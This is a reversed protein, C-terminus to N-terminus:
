QRGTPNDLLKKLKKIGRQYRSRVTNLPIDLLLAIDNFKMNEQFRLIIVERQEYSLQAMARDLCQLEEDLMEQEPPDVCNLSTNAVLSDWIRIQRWIDRIRNVVCTRLYSKLSVRLNLKVVREAFKVFVDHLVDEAFSKNYSLSYALALLYEGYEEYVLQLADKDGRKLRQILEKEKKDLM